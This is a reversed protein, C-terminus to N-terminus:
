NYNLKSHYIISQFNVTFVKKCSKCQYRQTGDKHGYKIIKTFKCNPCNKIRNRIQYKQNTEKKVGLELLLQESQKKIKILESPLM